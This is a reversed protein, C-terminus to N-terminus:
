FQGSILVYILVILFIAFVIKNGEFNERHTNAKGFYDHTDIENGKGKEIKKKNENLSYIFFLIILTVGIFFYM